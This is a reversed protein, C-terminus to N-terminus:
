PHRREQVIKVPSAYRDLVTEFLGAPYSGFIEPDAPGSRRLDRLAGDGLAPESRAAAVWQEFDDPPLAQVRFHQNVFGDGNYLANRGELVAPELAELNLVTVMGAMAYIQGGLAPVMLASMTADSTMRLRIPRGVPFVLTNVSAIGEEPYLFLYKWDYSIVEVEIPPEDGIPRTPDLARTSTLVLLGIAIVIASPLGWIALELPRSGDADPTHRGVPTRARFRWAIIGIALVVVVLVPLMLFLTEKLLALESAAVPGVPELLSGQALLNAPFTSILATGAFRM